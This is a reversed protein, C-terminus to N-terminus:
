SPLFEIPFTVTVPEVDKASFKFGKVRALIRRELSSDGLESSVIRAATVKGEPSITLEIVIKGKLSPKSRRERNYISYLKGKNQDFVVSVEEESRVNTQSSRAIQEKEMTKQKSESAGISSKVLAIDRKSLVTAGISDGVTQIGVGGSGQGVGALLVQEDAKIAATAKSSPSKIKTSLSSSIDSTDMLDALENGLALLGSTEAKERAKKQVATLPKQKVDEKKRAVKPKPKVFPKPTPQPKVVKPPPKKKQEIFKAVREPIVRKSRREQEPVDIMAVVIALALIIGLTIVAIIFFQKNNESDPLWQLALEQYRTM